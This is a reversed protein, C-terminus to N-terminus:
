WVKLVSMMLGLSKVTLAECVYYVMVGIEM